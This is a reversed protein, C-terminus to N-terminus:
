AFNMVTQVSTIKSEGKPVKQVISTAIRYKRMENIFGNNLVNISQSDIFKGHWWNVFAQCHEPLCCVVKLEAEVGKSSSLLVNCYANPQVMLEAYEMTKKKMNPDRIKRDLLQDYKRKLSVRQPIVTTTQPLFQMETSTLMDPYEVKIDSKKTYRSLNVEIKEMIKNVEEDNFGFQDSM